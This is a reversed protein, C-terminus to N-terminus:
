KSFMYNCHERVNIVMVTAWIHIETKVRKPEVAKAVFHYAYM